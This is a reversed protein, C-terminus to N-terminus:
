KRHAISLVANKPEIFVDVDEAVWTTAQSIAMLAFSGLIWSGTTYLLHCFARSAKPNFYGGIASILFILEPGTIPVLDQDM